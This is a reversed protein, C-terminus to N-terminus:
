SFKPQDLEDLALQIDKLSNSSVVLKEDLVIDAEGTPIDKTPKQVSGDDEPEPINLILLEKM